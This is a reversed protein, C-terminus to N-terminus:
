PKASRTRYMALAATVLTQLRTSSLECEITIVTGDSTARLKDFMPRAQQVLQDFSAAHQTAQNADDVIIHVAAALSASVRIEGYVGRVTPGAAPLRRLVSANDRVLLWLAVDSPIREFLALFGPAARLPVGSRLVARVTDPSAGSAIHVVMTSRDAFGALERRDGEHAFRLIGRDVVIPSGPTRGQDATICAMLADRDVGRIVAVSETDQFDRVALTMSEVAQLPDFGCNDRIAALVKGVVAYLQPEYEAWLESARVARFDLSIVFESDVPLYALVDRSARPEPRPAVRNALPPAASPGASPPVAAERYCAMSAVVLVLSITRM